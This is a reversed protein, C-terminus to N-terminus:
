TLFSFLCHSFAWLKDVTGGELVGFVAYESSGSGLQRLPSPVWFFRCGQPRIMRACARSLAGREKQLWNAIVFGSQHLM